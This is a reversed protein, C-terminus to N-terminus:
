LSPHAGCGLLQDADRVSWFTIDQGNLRTVDLAHVSEPPSLEYMNRLHEELLAYVDSRAPDDIEIRMSPKSM